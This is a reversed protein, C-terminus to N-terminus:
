ARGSGGTDAPKRTRPRAPKAAPGAVAEAGAEITTTKPAAAKRRRPAKPAAPTDALAEAAPVIVPRAPRGRAPAARGGGRGRGTAGAPRATAEATAAKGPAAEPASAGDAPGDAEPAAPAQPVLSGAAAAVRAAAARIEHATESVRGAVGEGTRSLANRAVDYGAAGKKVADEAAPQAVRWLRPGVIVAGVGVLLGWLFGSRGNIGPFM